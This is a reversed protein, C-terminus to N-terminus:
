TKVTSMKSLIINQLQILGRVHKNNLDFNKQLPKFYVISQDISTKEPILILIKKIDRIPLHPQASGSLFNEISKKMFPSKLLMYVFISDYRKPDSRLIIMGSNIRMNEHEIIESFYASNGVTGRTTLVIDNRELKGKRLIKDKEKSIFNNSSFDFGNQTVNGTNLFLCYEEKYFEDQSPYNSGRDGDILNTIYDIGGVNWGMPIEQQLEENYVMEGGNSKYPKGEVEPQGISEAYEQSIPFEFDVFWHKYISQATEELKKNIEENLKIRNVIVNYEKVIERQKEISPVPLKMDCFDQWSFGGRVSSDTTFWANRDFEPRRCWMMLYEPLLKNKDKVDFVVYAPSVIVAEEEELMSIPLVEDRGVHMPNFAFQEREVVKYKSLDTGQINAVSPMFYKNINIGQLNSVTLDRNRVNVQKIYDGLRKYNSRM